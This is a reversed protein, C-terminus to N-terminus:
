FSVLKAKNPFFLEGCFVFSFLFSVLIFSLSINIFLRSMKFAEEKAEQKEYIQM